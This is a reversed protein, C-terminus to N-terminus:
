FPTDEPNISENGNEEGNENGEEEDEEIDLESKLKKFENEAKQLQERCVKILAVGEKFKELVEEIDVDKKNLDEIIKELRRLANQLNEKSM